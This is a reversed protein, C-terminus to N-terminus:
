VKWGFGPTLGLTGAFLETTFKRRSRTALGSLGGQVLATEIEMM